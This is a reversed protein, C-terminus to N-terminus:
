LLPFYICFGKSHVIIETEGYNEAITLRKLKICNIRTTDRTFNETM